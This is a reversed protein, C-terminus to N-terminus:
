PTLRNAVYSEHSIIKFLPMLGSPTEAMLTDIIPATTAFTITKHDPSVYGTLSFHDKYAVVGTPMGTVPNLAEQKVENTDAESTIKGDKDITYTFSYTIHYYSPNACPLALLSPLPSHVSLFAILRERGTISSPLLVM